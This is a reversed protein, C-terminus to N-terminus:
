PASWLVKGDKNMLAIAAAGNQQTKGNKGVKVGNGISTTFGNQDLFELSTGDKTAGLHVLANQEGTLALQSGAGTLVSLAVSGHHEPDSLLLLPGSPTGDKLSISVLAAGSQDLLRLSPGTPGVSLDARERGATDKLIFSEAEIKEPVVPAAPPLPTAAPTKKTTSKTTTKPHQTQTQGMLAGTLAIMGVAVLCVLAGLKLRRNQQELKEIRALIPDKGDISM